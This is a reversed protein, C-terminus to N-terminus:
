LGYYQLWMERTSMYQNVLTPTALASPLYTGAGGAKLYNLAASSCNNGIGRYLHASHYSEIGAKNLRFVPTIHTDPLDFYDNNGRNYANVEEFAGPYRFDEGTIEPHMTEPYINEADILNENEDYM